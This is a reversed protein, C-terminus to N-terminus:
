SGDRPRGTGGEPAARVRALYEALEAVAVRHFERAREARARAEAARELEGFQEQLEAMQEHVQISALHAALERQKTLTVQEVM